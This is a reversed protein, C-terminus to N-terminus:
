AARRKRTTVPMLELDGFEVREIVYFDDIGASPRVVRVVDGFEHCYHPKALFSLQETGGLERRKFGDAAEQAQATTAVMQSRYFRPRKGYLGFYYTPSAPDADVAEARVSTSLSPNEGVVIFKNPGPKTSFRNVVEALNDGESYTWVVPDVSPDPKPKMTCVGDGDFCLEMGISDAMKVAAAWPDTNEEFLLVPTTHTTSAFQFTLGPLRSSILDQVATAYNTGAAVTYPTEFQAEAVTNSRDYGTLSVRNGGQDELDTEEYRFLGMAVLEITGDALVLGMWLKIENGYPALLDAPASPTLVGEEDVVTIRCTRQVASGGDITVSVSDVPLGTHVVVGGRLVDARVVVNLDAANVAADFAASRARM